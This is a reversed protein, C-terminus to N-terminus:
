ELGLDLERQRVISGRRDSYLRRPKRIRRAVRKQWM